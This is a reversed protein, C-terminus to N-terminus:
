KSEIIERLKRLAALRLCNSELSGRGFWGLDDYMEVEAPKIQILEPIASVATDTVGNVFIVLGKYFLVDVITMCIYRGNESSEFMDIVCDIVELKQFKTLEKM